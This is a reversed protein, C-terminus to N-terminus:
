KLNRPWEYRDQFFVNGYQNIFAFEKYESNAEHFRFNPGIPTDYVYGCIGERLCIAGCERIAEDRSM